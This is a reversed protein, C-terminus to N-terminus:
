EPAIAEPIPRRLAVLAPGLGALTAMGVSVAAIWLAAAWPVYVPFSYGTEEVMVVRLAYWQLPVGVALGILTGLVGMLLAEALVSRLVQARSAGIARLLGLERQRQLVSILLATVVGLGAVFMVAIQQGLAIGYLQEITEDIHGQVEDRRLVYLGYEAGHAKLISEQVSQVSRGDAGAALYVDFLDVRPDEWHKLYLARNVVLSGHSWSYDVLQGVIHLSVPGNPSAVALTDGVKVGHLLAFNESILAGDPREGLARYLDARKIRTRTAAARYFASADVAMMLVQTDRFLQRRVRAPLVAEVGPMKQLRAGLAETLPLSQGGASVPSGATIVLDAPVADQVWGRLTVRNSRIVGATETVLGVGAALAAIVLGTRGPARELNDAALRGTVGLCRRAVPRLLRALAAALLPTALLASLVVLGLGGYMGVRPPLRERGTVCIVGAALLLGGAAVQTFRSRWAPRAPIRRVADAPRERAARLAPVLAAAVATAVGAAVAVVLLDTGAEVGSPDLAFFLKSLVGRMPELGARAIALGLPIGLLSGALGLLAAEGTFLRVVQGRTAGLGRLVGIEHRREAVCVALANYVLFLGVVLAAVGCLLLGAQLSTMVNQVAQSQEEPTRVEARGALVAAVSKQVAARDAGPRLTLDIRSVQWRKLGVIRGPDDDLKLIVVDGGLAAAPGKGTVTGARRLAYVLKSGPAQVRLDRTTGALADELGQGLIAPVKRAAFRAWAISLTNQDYQVQWRPPTKDSREAALDLGVLLAPRGNLDPLHVRAFIRPHAALVGEVKLLEPALWREVPAEGNSVILDAVGALPAAATAAAHDMTRNLARTAVLMSVGAAISLVILSARVWRRRLYRLSLTTYVSLMRLIWRALAVSCFARIGVLRL